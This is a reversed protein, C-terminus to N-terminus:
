TTSFSYVWSRVRGPGTPRAVQKTPERKIIVLIVMVMVILIVITIIGIIVFRHKDDNRDSNSRSSWYNNANRMKQGVNNTTNDKNDNTITHKNKEAVPSLERAGRVQPERSRM